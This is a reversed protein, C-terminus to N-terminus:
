GSEHYIRSLLARLDCLEPYNELTIRLNDFGLGIYKLYRENKKVQYLYAFSGLAKFVRQIKMYDYMKLFHGFGDSHSFCRDFYYAKLIKKNEPSIGYYADDLLSVLDYQPLGMRADQFDIVFLSEDHIILNRSHFDRHSLVMKESSIKQCVGEYSSILVEEDKKGLSYNM